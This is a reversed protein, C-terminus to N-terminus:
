EDLSADTELPHAQKWEHISKLLRNFAPVGMKDRLDSWLQVWRRERPQMEKPERRVRDGNEVNELM